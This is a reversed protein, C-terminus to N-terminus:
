MPLGDPGLAIKVKKKPPPKSSSPSATTSLAKDLNGAAAAAQAKKGMGRKHSRKGSGDVPGQAGGGGAAKGKGKAKSKGEEEGGLGEEEEGNARAAAAANFFGDDADGDDLDLGDGFGKGRGGGNGILSPQVYGHAEAQKRKAVSEALEEDDMFLSAIESAKAVDSVSKTGVVVDQVDKKGRAMKLIREEITGRAVLRYVTVQKTQGVRHARDMAQADSSPNWDHDYFVVTDAATLNIGLGGARTSLCFVFIDPNTQWSTVMDRREAIPSSGDLRLYKYQRFILYEEVLDMMKTMQFYLLVRHGGAKLERLLSDLRALKASDVILRKTPPIRLPSVPTQSPSSHRILGAIPGGPLLRSFRQASGPNHLESPALGYLAANVLPQNLLREQTNVFSRNSVDPIIPTTIVRDGVKADGRSLYSADWAAPAIEHLSPSGPLSTSPLTPRMKFGRKASAAFDVDDVFRGEDLWKKEEAAGEVLQALLPSKARRSVDWASEGLLKVWGFEGNSVKVRESIWEPRWINMLNHLVRTDSGALNEEGPVNLKGGDTWFIKPIRAEIANRGSDPLYLQDIERALNGSQSFTGFVYPSVVDAREFLDPHNCVKRFQMVLNVLSRMNKSGAAAPDSGNDATALLDTISVRQRLARYIERQRQSLDVLLDIEIKDGLEKQVHKKVRRLMFPKLIMHLRKLQEPKLTGTVGGSSSEIDKSFWETFEEHSDFLQPMIFHLLAWLEHMSNQIPTGTLLLRNRCRLSLLSKWRASSSSKIAQAEDLIMYQWKQGQLYKEDQVALQYSTVLIHFPSDESFTQNKKSWLKRLTERDKPSGWYPIAKLRPVFRALEQQWNHLTSAPAIVLFPGWINHHEALYALLSISQITKGLGMEDALIGNIGQEYLNGLWTLGKLQYEKLQAMLMKPQTITVSNEGLSPNQFNLEEGDMTDDEPPPAGGKAQATDFASARDKAAQIAAQAGRAAHRRLNEEDDNDYDIDPLAEGDSGIAIDEFGHKGDEAPVEMGEAAEAEQTKIKKGIFHSYLETQTLLFNLKRSARKSERAEEEAKARELAERDAKKKSLIEDKENKRWFAALEKVVRKAKAAGEKTAKGGVRQATKQNKQGFGNRVCAQARRQAIQKMTQDYGQYVRYVRPVDRVIAAWSMRQLDEVLEFRIRAEEETVGRPDFTNPAAAQGQGHPNQQFVGQGAYQFVDEVDENEFPLSFPPLAEDQVMLPTKSKGALAEAKKVLEKEPKSPRTWRGKGVGPEKTKAAKKKAPVSAPAAESGNVASSAGVSGARSLEEQEDHMSESPAHEGDEGYEFHPSETREDLRRRKVKKGKDLGGEEGDDVLSGAVSGETRSRAKPPDPKKEIGRIKKWGKAPGPKKRITGDKNTPLAEGAGTEAKALKEKMWIEDQVAKVDDESLGSVDNAMCKAIVEARTLGSPWVLTSPSPPHAPDIHGNLPKDSTQSPSGPPPSSALGLLEEDLGGKGAGQKGKGYKRKKPTGEAGKRVNQVQGQWQPLAHEDLGSGLGSPQAQYTDAWDALARVETERRTQYHILTNEWIDENGMLLDNPRLAKAYAPRPHDPHQAHAHSHPPPPPPPYSTHPHSYSHSAIPATRPPTAASPATSLALVDREREYRERVESSTRAYPESTRRADLESTRREAGPEPYARDYVERRQPLHPVHEREAYERERKRRYMEEEEVRKAREFALSEEQMRAIVISSHRREPDPDHLDPHPHTSQSQSQSQSRSRARSTSSSSLAPPPHPHTSPPYPRDDTPISTPRVHGTGGALLPSGPSTYRYGQGPPSLPQSHGQSYSREVYRDDPTPAPHYAPYGNRGSSGSNSPAPAPASPLPSVGQVPAPDDNMLASMSIRSSRSPPSPEPAPITLTNLSTRPSLSKSGGRVPDYYARPARPDAM